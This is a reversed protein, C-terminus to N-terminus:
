LEGAGGKPAFIKPYKETVQLVYTDQPNLLRARKFVARAEAIRSKASVTPKSKSDLLTVAYGCLTVVSTDPYQSALEYHRTAGEMDGQLTHWYAFNGLVTPNNPSLALTAKYQAEASPDESEDLFIAFNASCEVHTPEATM